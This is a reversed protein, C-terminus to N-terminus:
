FLQNASGFGADTVVAVSRNKEELRERVQRIEDGLGHGVRIEYSREGLGVQLSRVVKEQTVM